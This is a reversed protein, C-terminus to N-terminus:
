RTVDNQRFSLHRSRGTTEQMPGVPPSPKRESLGTAAFASAERSPSFSSDKRMPTPCGRWDTEDSRRTLSDRHPASEFKDAIRCRAEPWSATWEGDCVTEGAAQRDRHRGTCSWVDQLCRLAGLEVSIELPIDMIYSLGDGDSTQPARQGETRRSSNNPLGASRKRITRSGVRADFPSYRQGILWMGTATSEETTIAIQTRPRWRHNQLNPPGSYSNSGFASVLRL